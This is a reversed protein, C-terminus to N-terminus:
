LSKASTNQFIGTHCGYTPRTPPNTLSAGETLVHKTKGCAASGDFNIYNLSKQLFVTPFLLLSIYIDDIKLSNQWLIILFEIIFQRYFCKVKGGFWRGVTM